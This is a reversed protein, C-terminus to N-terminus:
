LPQLCEPMASQHEEGYFGWLHQVFKVSEWHVKLSLSFFCSASSVCKQFDWKCWLATHHAGEELGEEGIVASRDAGIGDNLKCIVGRHDAGDFVFLPPGDSHNCVSLRSSLLSILLSSMTSKLLIASVCVGMWMLPVATSRIFLKLNRPAWIETSLVQIVPQELRTLFKWSCRKQRLLRLFFWMEESMRTFKQRQVLSLMMVLQM